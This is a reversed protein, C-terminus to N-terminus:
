LTIYDKMECSQSNGNMCFLYIFLYIFLYFLVCIRESLIQVGISSNMTSAVTEHCEFISM